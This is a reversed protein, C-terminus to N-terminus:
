SDGGKGFNVEWQYYRDKESKYMLFAPLFSVLFNFALMVFFLTYKLAPNNIILPIVIVFILSFLFAFTIHKWKYKLIFKTWKMEMVEKYPNEM